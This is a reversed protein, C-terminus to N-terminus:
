WAWSARPPPASARRRSRSRTAPASSRTTARSSSAPEEPVSESLDAAHDVYNLGIGWIKRPRRYPATFRVDASATFAADDAKAALTALEDCRGDELLALLTPPADDTLTSLPVVGRDPDVVVPVDLGDRDITALHM